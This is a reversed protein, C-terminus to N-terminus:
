LLIILFKSFFFFFLSMSLSPSEIFYESITQDNTSSCNSNNEELEAFGLPHSISISGLVHMTILMLLSVNLLLGLWDEDVRISVWDLWNLHSSWIRLRLNLSLRINLDSSSNMVAKNSGLCNLAWNLGLYSEM